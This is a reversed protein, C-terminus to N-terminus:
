PGNCDTRGSRLLEEVANWAVEPEGRFYVQHMSPQWRSTSLSVMQARLSSEHNTIKTDSIRGSTQDYSVVIHLRLPHVNDSIWPVDALERLHNLVPELAPNSEIRHMYIM